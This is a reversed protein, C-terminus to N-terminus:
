SMVIYHFHLSKTPFNKNCLQLFVKSAIVVFFFTCLDCKGVIKGCQQVLKQPLLLRVKGQALEGTSTGYQLSVLCTGNCWSPPLEVSAIIETADNVKLLDLCKHFDPLHIIYHCIYGVLQYISPELSLISVFQYHYVWKLLKLTMSKSSLNNQLLNEPYAIYGDEKLM